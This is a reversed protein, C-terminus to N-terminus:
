PLQIFVPGGARRSQQHACEGGLERYKNFARAPRGEGPISSPQHAGPWNLGGEGVMQHNGPFSRKRAALQLRKEGYGPSALLLGDTQLPTAAFHECLGM